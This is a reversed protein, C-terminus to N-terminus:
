IIGEQILENIEADTFGKVIGSNDTYPSYFKCGKDQCSFFLEWLGSNRSRQNKSVLRSKLDCRCNPNGANIGRDDAFGNFNGCAPNTCKRYPRNSNPNNGDKRVIDL